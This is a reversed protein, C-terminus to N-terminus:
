KVRLVVCDSILPIPQITIGLLPSVALPVVQGDELPGGCSEMMLMIVEQTNYKLTLDLYGDPGDTTCGFDCGFNVVGNNFYPTAVDEYAWSLPCVDEVIEVGSASFCGPVFLCAEEPNITTVDFEETGLIAAPLVGKSAVNLPNPCSQPKIDLDTFIAPLGAGANSTGLLFMMALVLSFVISKRM